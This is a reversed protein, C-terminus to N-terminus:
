FYHCWQQANLFIICPTAHPYSAGRRGEALPFGKEQGVQLGWEGLAAPHEKPGEWCSQQSANPHHAPCLSNPKRSRREPLTRGLLSLGLTFM